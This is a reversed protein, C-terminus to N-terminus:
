KRRAVHFSVYNYGVRVERALRYRIHWDVLDRMQKETVYYAKFVEENLSGDVSQEFELGKDLMLEVVKDRTRKTVFDTM